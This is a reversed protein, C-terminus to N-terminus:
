DHLTAFLKGSCHSVPLATIPFYRGGSGYVSGCLCAHVNAFVSECTHILFHVSMRTCVSKLPSIKNSSTAVETSCDAWPTGAHYLHSSFCIGVHKEYLPTYIVMFGRAKERRYDLNHFLSRM